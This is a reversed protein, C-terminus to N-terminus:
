KGEYDAANYLGGFALNAKEAVAMCVDHTHSTVGKERLWGFFNQVNERSSLKLDRMALFQGVLQFSNTM